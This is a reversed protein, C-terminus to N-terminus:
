HPYVKVNHVVKYHLLATNAVQYGESSYISLASLLEYVQMKMLINNSNFEIYHLITCVHVCVSVCVCAEPQWTFYLEAFWFMDGNHNTVALPLFRLVRISCDVM